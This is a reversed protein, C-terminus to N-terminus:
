RAGRPTIPDNELHAARVFTRLPEVFARAVCRFLGERAVVVTFFSSYPHDIVQDIGGDSFLLWLRREPRYGHTEPGPSLQGRRHMDGVLRSRLNTANADVAARYRFTVQENREATRCRRRKVTGTARSTVTVLEHLGRNRGARGACQYM